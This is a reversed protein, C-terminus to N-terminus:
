LQVPNDISELREWETDFKKGTEFGGFLECLFLFAPDNEGYGWWMHHQVVHALEHAVVGYLLDESKFLDERILLVHNNPDEKHTCVRGLPDNFISEVGTAITPMVRCETNLEEFEFNHEDCISRVLREVVRDKENVERIDARNESYHDFLYDIGDEVTNNEDM